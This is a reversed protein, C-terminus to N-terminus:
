FVYKKMSEPGGEMMSKMIEQMKSDKLMLMIEPDGALAKMVEPPLGGPLSGDKATVADTDVDNFDDVFSGVGAENMAIEQSGAQLQENFQDLIRPDARGTVRSEALKQVLEKKSVCESYDVGRVDLEAKLEDLAMANEKIEDAAWMTM